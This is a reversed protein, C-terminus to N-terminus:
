LDVVIPEHVLRYNEDLMSANICQIGDLSTQGYGEHIHGCVHLRPRVRELADRLDDCGVNCGSETADLVGFAPGHTILVDVAPPILNWHARIDAGRRRNFAWDHFWPQVPSGWVRLGGIEAGRDNLYTVGPPIAARVEADRADEFWFDHNGAVLVKHPHPQAGFWALFREIEPWAGHKSVDGAHILLDGPPLEIVGHQGHTDSIAVIRM